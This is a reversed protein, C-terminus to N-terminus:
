AATPPVPLPNKPSKAAVLGIGELHPEDPTVVLLWVSFIVPRQPPHHPKDLIMLFFSSVLDHGPATGIVQLATRVVDATSYVAGSLVGQAKNCHVLMNAFVLPDNLQAQAKEVTMGRHKRRQVLAEVLAARHESHHVDEITLEDINLALSHATAQIKESEGVLTVAAVGAQQARVAAQLVRPDDAEALAIQAPSKKAADIIQNLIEM